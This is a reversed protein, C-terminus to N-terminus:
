PWYVSPCSEIVHISLINKIEFHMKFDHLLNTNTKISLRVTAMAWTRALPGRSTALMWTSPLLGIEVRPAPTPGFELRYPWKISSPEKCHLTVKSAAKWVVQTFHGYQQSAEGIGNPPNNYFNNKCYVAAESYWIKVAEVMKAEATGSASTRYLNGRGAEPM